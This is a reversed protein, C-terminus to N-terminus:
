INILKSLFANLFWCYLKHHLGLLLMCLPSCVCYYFIWIINILGHNGHLKLNSVTCLTTHLNTSLTRTLTINHRHMAVTIRDAHCTEALSEPVAYLSSRCEWTVITTLLSRVTFSLIWTTRVLIMHIHTKM